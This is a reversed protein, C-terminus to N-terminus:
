SNKNKTHFFVNWVAIALGVVAIIISITFPIVLDMGLLCGYWGTIGNYSWSNLPSLVTAIIISITSIAGLTMIAIGLILKKM